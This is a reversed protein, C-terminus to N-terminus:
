SACSHEFDISTLRTTSDLRIDGHREFPDRNMRKVGEVFPTKRFGIRQDNVGVRRAALRQEPEGGIGANWDHEELAVPRPTVM